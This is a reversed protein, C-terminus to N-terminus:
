DHTLEKPVQITDGLEFQVIARMAVILPSDPHNFATRRHKREKGFITSSWHGSEYYGNRKDMYGFNRHVASTPPSLMVKYKEILPGAQSWDTSPAFPKLDGNGRGVWVCTTHCVQDNLPLGQAKAVAWDLALGTLDATKVEVHDPQPIPEGLERERIGGEIGGGAL